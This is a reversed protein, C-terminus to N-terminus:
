RRRSTAALLSRAYVADSPEALPLGQERPAPEHEVGLRDDKSTANPEVVSESM